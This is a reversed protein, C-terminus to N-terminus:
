NPIINITKLIMDVAPGSLQLLPKPYCGLFLILMVLPILAFLDNRFLGPQRLPLGERLNGLMVRQYMWLMYVASFIITLGAGGAIWPNYSFLGLLMMFEGVFGSTLPLAVTGLLVIMFIAALVPMTTAIGGLDSIKRSKNRVEIIDVIIFLAVVNIGHAVMQFAAGNVASNRLSLVAATILGAHAMSVWAIFRKMDDQRIAIVSSYIIGATVLIIVPMGLVPFALPCIPILLRIVGYVGMKLMIGALIMSGAPPATAYTDPQWTHFPVIPIKIAFALFFALFIWIQSERTTAAHYLAAFDFSHPAPTQFYLYILAALMILSGTLTYVFFKFTIRIRNEGGWLAVIFYVPILAFEWFVYFVMGNLATFVGILAGEAILILGFFINARRSRCTYSAIIIVPFLFATLLVLMLSLGDMGFMFPINLGKIWQFSFINGASGDNTFRAAAVLALILEAMAIILANRRIANEKLSFMVLASGAIPLIILLGTIM